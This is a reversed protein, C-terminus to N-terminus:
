PMQFSKAFLAVLALEANGNAKTLEEIAQQRSFGNSTIAKIDAEPFKNQSAAGAAPASSAAGQGGPHYLLYM